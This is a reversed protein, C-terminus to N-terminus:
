EYKGLIGEIEKRQRAVKEAEAAASAAAEAAKQRRQQIDVWGAGLIAVFLGGILLYVSDRGGIWVAYLCILLGPLMALVRKGIM